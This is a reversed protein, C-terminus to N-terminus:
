ARGEKQSGGGDISSWVVGWGLDADEGEDEHAHHGEVVEAELIHLHAEVVHGAGQGDDEVDPEGEGNEPAHTNPIMIFLHTHSFGLWPPPALSPFGWRRVM